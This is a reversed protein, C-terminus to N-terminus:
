NMKFSSVIMKNNILGHYHLQILAKLKREMNNEVKHNEGLINLTLNPDSKRNYFAIKKEGDFQLLYDQEFYQFVNNIYNVAYGTKTSDLMNNGLAYFPEPYNIQNLATPLIDIQQVLKHNIGILNSSPKYLLIPIQFIGSLNTYLPDNSPGTHDATIIFLTNNFWKEKSASEFFKRLAFDAYEVSKLIPMDGGLFKTKYKEPIFAPHHSSLTFLTALFPEPIKSVTNNTYQFYDEDWIGWDGDYDKENAYETRGYYKDYGAAKIFGDFGMTGNTGGHFFASYYNLSKLTNALSTFQNSGYASTIYSENTLAPIGGLIAPIGEISKKGNAFANDFVLSKQILSDLFPTYTKKGSLAGIYEKSFSELIIIFVNIKKSTDANIKAIHIPSIIEAAEELKFYKKEELKELDFSKIISFPTSIILPINKASVYESANIPMIPRLQLGGRFAIICLGLFSINIVLWTVANIVFGRTGKITITQATDKSFINSTKNYLWTILISLGIWIFVIYWFDKLYQPLLTTIDSGLSFLDFFDSTTRKLTFHYYAIDFSDALLAISNTSIFIYKLTTQYWSKSLFFPIISLLIFIGNVLVLAPLDFRLGWCLIVIFKGISVESFHNYNLVFFFIKGIPYVLLAIGLRFLM